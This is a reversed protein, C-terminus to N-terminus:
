QEARGFDIGLQRRIEDLLGMVIGSQNEWPAASEEGRICRSFARLEYVMNNPEPDYQLAEMHKDHRYLRVYAPGNLTDFTLTGREGQIFSPFVDDSVKSFTINAQMDGYDLQVSGAANVGNSLSSGAAHVRKPAGFLACCTHLCYVGLDMVAGNGLSADFINVHEGSLFRDYRSSYQCFTFNALRM